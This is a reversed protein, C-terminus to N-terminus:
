QEQPIYKKYFYGIEILIAENMNPAYIRIVEINEGHKSITGLARDFNTHEAESKVKETIEELEEWDLRRPTEVYGIQADDLDIYLGRQIEELHFFKDLTIQAYDKITEGSPAMTIGEYEYAKIISPLDQPSINRLRISHYTTDGITIDGLASALENGIRSEASTAAIKIDQNLNQAIIPIYYFKVFHSKHRLHAEPFPDVSELIMYNKLSKIKVNRVFERKRISGSGSLVNSTTM